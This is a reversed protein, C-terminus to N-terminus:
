VGHRASGEPGTRGRPARAEGGGEDPGDGSDEDVGEDAPDERGFFARLGAVFAPTVAGLISGASRVSEGLSTLTRGIGAASDVIPKLRRGEEELTSAIGNLRAAVETIEKMAEEIRPGTTDVFVRVSKLTQVAQYLVPLIAGVLIAGLVLAILGAVDGM